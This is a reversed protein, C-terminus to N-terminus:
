EFVAMTKCHIIRNLLLRRTYDKLQLTMHLLRVTGTSICGKYITTALGPLKPKLLNLQFHCALYLYLSAELLFNTLRPYWFNCSTLLSCTLFFIFVVIFLLLLLHLAKRHRSYGLLFIFDARTWKHMFEMM